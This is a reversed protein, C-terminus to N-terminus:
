NEILPAARNIFIVFYLYTDLPTAYYKAAIDGITTDTSATIETHRTKNLWTFEVNIWKRRPAQTRLYYIIYYFNVSAALKGREKKGRSM